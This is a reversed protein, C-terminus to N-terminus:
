RYTANYASGSVLMEESWGVSANHETHHVAKGFKNGLGLHSPSPIKRQLISYCSKVSFFKKQVREACACVISNGTM